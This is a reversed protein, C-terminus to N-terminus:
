PQEVGNEFPSIRERIAQDTIWLVSKRHLGRGHYPNRALSRLIKPASIGSGPFTTTNGEADITNGEL